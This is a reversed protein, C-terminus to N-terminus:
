NCYLFGYKLDQKMICKDGKMFILDPKDYKTYIQINSFLDDFFRNLSKIEDSEIGSAVTLKLERVNM